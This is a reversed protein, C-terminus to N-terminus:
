YILGERAVIQKSFTAAASANSYPLLFAVVGKGLYGVIDIERKKLYLDAVIERMDDRDLGGDTAIRTVVLSLPARSRDARAPARASDEIGTGVSDITCQCENRPNDRRRLVPSRRSVPLEDSGIPSLEHNFEDTQLGSRRVCSGPALGIIGNRLARCRAKSAAPSNASM